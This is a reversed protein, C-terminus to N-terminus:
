KPKLSKINITTSRGILTSPLSPKTKNKKTKEGVQRPMFILETPDTSSPVMGDDIEKPKKANKYINSEYSSKIIVGQSIISPLEKYQQKQSKIRFITTYTNLCSPQCLSLKYICGL